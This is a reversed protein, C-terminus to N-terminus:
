ALLQSSSAATTIVVNQSQNYAVALTGQGSFSVNNVVVESCLGGAACGGTGGAPSGKVDITASTGYITGTFGITGTGHMNITTTDNRDFWLAMGQMAGGSCPATTCAAIDMSSSGGVSIGGGSAGSACAAPSNATGCTFFITVGHGVVNVGSGSGGLTGTVVYLGSTLTCSGGINNYIGPSATGSNCDAQASLGSYDPHAPLSALPDSIASTTTASPSFNCKSGVTGTVDIPPQPNNPSTTVNNQPNCGVNGGFYIPGGSATVTGNQLDSGALSCLACPAAVTQGRSGVTAIAAAAVNFSSIGIVRGFSTAVARTPIVVRVKTTAPPNADWSICVTSADPQVALAAPDTCSNWAVTGYNSAVYNKILTVISSPTTDGQTIDTAGALAAADAANQAQRREQAVNGIDVVIAAVVLLLTLLLAVLLLVVGREDDETAATRALSRLRTM